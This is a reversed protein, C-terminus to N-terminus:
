NNRKVDWMTLIFTHVGLWYRFGHEKVDWMTLIFTAINERASEEPAHIKVDWM